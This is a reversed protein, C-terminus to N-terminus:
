IFMLQQVTTKILHLMNIDRLLVNLQTEAILVKQSLVFVSQEIFLQNHRLKLGWVFSLKQFTTLRFSTKTQAFLPQGRDLIAFQLFNNETIVNDDDDNYPLTDM